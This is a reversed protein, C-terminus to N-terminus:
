EKRRFIFLEGLRDVKRRLVLGFGTEIIEGELISEYNKTHFLRVYRKGSNDLRWELSIDDIFSNGEGEAMAENGTSIRGGIIVSLRNNWFRKAFRFSYDTGGQTTGDTAYNDEVGISVDVTKLASGAINSIENQLFSNLANNTSFGNNGGQGGVYMGTVLMTVALKGREEASMSALQNQLTVDEPAELTFTLGMDELSQTITVGVDFNVYRSNNDETVSTRVRETAVIHLYPNAPNGTFDVYSGNAINFTKLPIVPLSYKMEGSNLTYRGTLLLDGQPTYQMSLTGGGQVKVYNDDGLDAQLQAGQDIQVNLLLDVGGIAVEKEEKPMSITDNLNVFTVMSGLRDEVTLPSEKLIYTVDTSGLVNMNGRIVPSTLEGKITSFLSVFVKGHLLSNKNKRANLLEYEVARMQLDAKMHSFDGLDVNGTLTFPNKGKSYINFNDFVLRNRNISVPTKDFHFDVAYLPSHINASDFRIEGDIRPTATNGKISFNGNLMGKLVVVDRPVFANAIDLPFKDFNVHAQIEGKQSSGNEQWYSGDIATAVEDNIVWQVNILHREKSTPLYIAELEQAGMAYGEYTLDETRLTGSFTNSEEMTKLYHFEADVICSIDPAYPLMGLIESLNLQTLDITLDQKAEENPTSYLRLGTGYEDLIEVHAEVKGSDPLSIYNGENLTFPRFGITPNEPFFSLRIDKEEFEARAGLELGLKHKDNYFHALTTIGANSVEGSLSTTFVPKRKNPANSVHLNAVLTTDNITTVDLKVTDFELSDSQLCYVYGDAFLGSQSSTSVHINVQEMGIGNTSRLYEMIPNEKGAELSLSIDPLYAQAKELDIRQENLQTQITQVLSSFGESLTNLGNGGDLKLHFDGTSLQAYLSDPKMEVMASVELPMGMTQLPRLNTGAVNMTAQAKLSDRLLLGDIHTQMKIIPNDSELVLHAQHAKLAAHVGVDSILQSGFQLSDIGINASILTSPAYIDAGKGTVDGHLTLHGLSDKPFFHHLPLSDALLILSYEELMTDYYAEASLMGEQEHLDLRANYRNKDVSLTGEVNLGQPIEIWPLHKDMLPAFTDPNDTVIQWEGKGTRREKEILHQVAGSASLKIVSDMQVDLTDLQLHRMNGQLAVRIDLPSHHLLISSDLAAIDAWAIQGEVMADIQGKGNKELASWPLRGQAQLYSAKGEIRLYPLNVETSDMRIKGETHVLQLGSREKVALQRVIGRVEKGRYLLSDAEVFVESAHIHRPNFSKTVPLSTHDYSFTGNTLALHSAGYASTELDIVLNEIETAEWGAEIGLTDEPMHLRINTQKIEAGGLFIEWGVPSSITDRPSDNKHLTITVDTEDLLLNGVKAVENAVNVDSHQVLLRGIEGNIEVSPILNGTRAKVDTLSIGSVQVESRLLPWLAIGTRLEGVSALTDTHLSDAVVVDRIALDLPFALRIRGVRINMGTAESAFLTVKEVAWNQIPPLYLLTLLAAFLVVPAAMLLVVIRGIYRRKHIDMRVCTPFFVNGKKNALM